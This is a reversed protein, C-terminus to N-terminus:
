SEAGSGRSYNGKIGAQVTVAGVSCPLMRQAAQRADARDQVRVGTLIGADKPNPKRM